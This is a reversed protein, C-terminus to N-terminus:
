NPPEGGEVATFTSEPYEWPFYGNFNKPSQALTTVTDCTGDPYYDVQMLNVAWPCDECREVRLSTLRYRGDKRLVRVEDTVCGPFSSKVRPQTFAANTFFEVPPVSPWQFPDVYGVQQAVVPPATILRPGVYVRFVVLAILALVALVGICAFINRLINNASAELRSEQQAM